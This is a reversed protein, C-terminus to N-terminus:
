VKVMHNVMLIVRSDCRLSGLQGALPDGMSVPGYRAVKTRTGVELDCETWGIM